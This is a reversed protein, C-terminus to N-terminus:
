NGSGQNAHSELSKVASAVLREWTALGSKDNDDGYFKDTIYKAANLRTNDNASHLALHVIAQAAAPGAQEVIRKTMQEYSEEPHVTREMKLSEFAEDSDWISDEPESAGQQAAKRTNEIFEDPDIYERDESGDFDASM